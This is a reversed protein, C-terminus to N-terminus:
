RSVVLSEARVPQGPAEVRLSQWSGYTASRWLWEFPGYRFRALWWRSFMAYVAFLGVAMTLGVLPTVQLGLGYKSFTLDLLAVQIMYNTLAMRGTWAFPALRRLWDRDRAVLLLVVGIYLFSLWMDRVLGFGYQVRNLAVARVIPGTEHVPLSPFVFAQVAWLATGAVALTVILRRHREPEDFLGLRLAIFGLLFLMFSNVPLFSFPQAYFWKMHEVRAAFVTRYSTAEKVKEFAEYHAQNRKGTAELTAKAGQEGKTAVLYTAKAIAYVNWSVACAVAAIVLQRVSWRRVVLLPLGWVAYTLLVNFGFCAEAIFGFVALTGIRRLYNAVFRGGRADAGRLQIAFGVGFLIAFMTWFREEFFLAVVRQYIKDASGGGSSFMSFHVFFMGILAIGRLVDLVHLRDRDSAVTNTSM